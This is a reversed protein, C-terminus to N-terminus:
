RMENMLYSLFQKYSDPADPQRSAAVLSGWYKNVIAKNELLRQNPNRLSAPLVSSGAGRGFDVGTSQPEM